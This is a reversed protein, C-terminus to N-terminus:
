GARCATELLAPLCLSPQTPVALVELVWKWLGREITVGGARVILARDTQPWTMVLKGLGTESWNICNAGIKEQLLLNWSRTVQQTFNKLRM